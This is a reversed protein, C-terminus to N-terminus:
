VNMPKAGDPTPTETTSTHDSNRESFQQALKSVQETAVVTAESMKQWSYEAAHAVQTSVTQLAPKVQEAATSVGEKTKEYAVHASVKTQEWVPTAVEVTKEWAPTVTESTRRKIQQFSESNYADVAGNHVKIAADSIIGSVAFWGRKLKELPIINEISSTPGEESDETNISKASEENPPSNQYDIVEPQTTVHPQDTVVADDMM